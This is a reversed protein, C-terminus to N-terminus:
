LRETGAAVGAPPRGKLTLSQPRQPAYFNTPCPVERVSLIKARQELTCPVLVSEVLRAPGASLSAEVAKRAAAASSVDPTELMREAAAETDLEIWEALVAVQDPEGPRPKPPQGPLGPASARVFLMVRDGPLPALEPKVEKQPEPPPTFLGALQWVGSTMQLDVECRAGYFLPQQVEAVGQGYSLDGLHESWVPAFLLHSTVSGPEPPVYFALLSADHVGDEITIVGRHVGGELAELESAYDFDADERQKVLELVEFALGDVGTRNWQAQLVRDTHTGMRLEFRARNLAAHVNRSAGLLLHGSAQDRIAYIGM